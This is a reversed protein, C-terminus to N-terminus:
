VSHVGSWRVGTSYPKRKPKVCIISPAAVLPVNAKSVDLKKM